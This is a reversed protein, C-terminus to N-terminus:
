RGASTVELRHFIARGKRSYLGVRGHSLAEDAADLFLDTNIGARIRRGQAVVVLYFVDKIMPHPRRSGSTRMAATRALFSLARKVADTNGTAALEKREKGNVLFLRARHGKPEVTFLYYRQGQKRFILGVEGSRASVLCRASLDHIDYRELVNASGATKEDLQLCGGPVARWPVASAGGRYARWYGCDESFTDSFWFSRLTVRKGAKRGGASVRCVRADDFSAQSDVSYFGVKGSLPQQVTAQLVVKGDLLCVIQDGLAQVEMQYWRGGEVEQGLRAEDLIRWGFPKNSHYALQVRSTQRHLRFLAFGDATSRFILGARGDKLNKKIRVRARFSYDTWAEKGAFVAHLMEDGSFQHLVGKEVYWTRQHESGGTDQKWEDAAGIDSFDERFFEEGRKM